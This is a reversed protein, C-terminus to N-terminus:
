VSYRVLCEFIINVPMTLDGKSREESMSLPPPDGRMSRGELDGLESEEEEEEEEEEDEEEEEEEEKTNSGDQSETDEEPDEKLTVGTLHECCTAVVLSPSGTDIYLAPRGFEIERGLVKLSPFQLPLTQHCHGEDLGWVKVVCAKDYSFVLRKEGHIRVDNIGAKHGQLVASPRSTVVPHWLRVIKDNSGTAVVQFHNIEKFDFCRVGWGLKFVYADFKGRLHRIVISAAPDRSVTVVTNNHPLLRLGLVGDRHVSPSHSIHAFESHKSMDQWFLCQVNDVEDKDFLSNVPQLFTVLTVGGADDGFALLSEGEPDDPNFHYDVCTPISKFGFARYEEYHVSASADYFHMTRLSTAYVAHKSNDMWLGDTIWGPDSAAVDLDANPDTDIDVDYKRQLRFKDDYIGVHGFKSVLIYVYSTSTAVGIVKQITERRAHQQLRFKGGAHSLHRVGGKLASPAMHAMQLDLVDGWQVFAAAPAVTTETSTAGPLRVRSRGTALSSSSLGSVASTASARRSAGAAPAPSSKKGGRKRKKAEAMQRFMCVADQVLAQQTAAGSTVRSAFVATAAEVWEELTM